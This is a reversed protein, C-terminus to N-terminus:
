NSALHVWHRHAAPLWEAYRRRFLAAATAGSWNHPLLKAPLGPDLLPFRRWAHALRALAACAQADSGPSLEAFETIFETYRADLATLDWSRAVLADEDGVVGYHAVFAHADEALALTTLVRLADPERETDPCIWVGPVPSGFGVGSLGAELRRRLERSDPPSVLLVLWTGDWHREDRTFAEIRRVVRALRRRVDPPLSWRVRRGVRESVLWGAAADRALAQRAAKEEVGLLGLVDVLTSTWVARDSPLVYEGLVTTLLSRASAHYTDQYRSLPVPEDSPRSAEAM